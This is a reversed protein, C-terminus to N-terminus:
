AVGDGDGVQARPVGHAIGDEAVVRRRGGAHARDAHRERQVGAVRVGVVRARQLRAGETTGLALRRRDDVVVVDAERALVGARQQRQVHADARRRHGVRGDVALVEARRAGARRQLKRARAVVTTAVIVLVTVPPTVWSTFASAHQRPGPKAALAARRHDARQHDHEHHQREPERQQRDDVRLGLVGAALTRAVAGEVEGVGRQGARREVEPAEGPRRRRRGSRGVAGWRRRSRSGADGTAGGGVAGHEAGRRVSPRVGRGQLRVEVGGEVVRRVHAGAPLDVDAVVVGARRYPGVAHQAVVVVVVVLVLKQPDAGLRGDTAARAGDRRQGLDRRRRCQLRLVRHHGPRRFESTTLVAPVTRVLPRTPLRVEVSSPLSGSIARSGDTAAVVGADDPM